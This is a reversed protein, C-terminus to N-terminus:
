RPSSLPLPLPLPLSGRNADRIVSPTAATCVLTGAGTRTAVDSDVPVAVAILVAGTIGGRVASSRPISSLMSFSVSVSESVELSLHVHRCWSAVCAGAQLVSREIGAYKALRRRSQVASHQAISTEITSQPRSQQVVTRHISVRQANANSRNPQTPNFNHQKLPLSKITRSALGMGSGAGVWSCPPPKVGAVEGAMLVETSGRCGGSCASGSGCECGCPCGTGL